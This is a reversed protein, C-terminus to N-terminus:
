AANSYILAVGYHCRCRYIASCCSGASWLASNRAVCGMDKSYPYPYALPM